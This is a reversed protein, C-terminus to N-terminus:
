IEHPKLRQKGASQNRAHTYFITASLFKAYVRTVSFIYAYKKYKHVKCEVVFYKSCCLDYM